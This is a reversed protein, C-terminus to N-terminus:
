ENAKRVDSTIRSAQRKGYHKRALHTCAAFAMLLGIAAVALKGRGNQLADGLLVFATTHAGSVLCSVVMYRALPVEALGLLYNQVVFPVGPTVRALVILDTVDGAAVPPLRYGLRSLLRTLRPRLTFRALWYALLLNAAMAALACALVGATGLQVGFAVKAPLAFALLPMGFAPLVAMALFYATPGADQMATVVKKLEERLDIGRLLLVAATGLVGAAVAFKLLLAKRAARQASEM